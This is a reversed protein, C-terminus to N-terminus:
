RPRGPHRRPRRRDARLAARGDGNQGPRRVPGPGGRVCPAHASSGRPPSRQCMTSAIMTNACGNLRQADLYVRCLCTHVSPRRRYRNRKPPVERLDLCYRNRQRTVPLLLRNISPEFRLYAQRSVKRADREECIVCAMPKDTGAAFASPWPEGCRSLPEHPLGRSSWLRSRKEPAGTLSISQKRSRLHLIQKSSFCYASPDSHRSVRDLLFLQTASPRHPSM